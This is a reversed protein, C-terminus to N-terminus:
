QSCPRSAASRRQKRGSGSPGWGGLGVDPSHSHGELWGALQVGISKPQLDRGWSAPKNLITFNDTATCNYFWPLRGSGTAPWGISMVAAETGHLNVVPDQDGSSIVVRQFHAASPKTRSYSNLRRYVDLMSSKILPQDNCASYQWFM